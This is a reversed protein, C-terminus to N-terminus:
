DGAQVFFGGAIPVRNDVGKALERQAKELARQYCCPPNRCVWGGTYSPEMDASRLCIPCPPVTMTPAITGRGAASADVIPPPLHRVKHFVSTEDTHRPDLPLWVPAAPLSPIGGWWGAGDAAIGM